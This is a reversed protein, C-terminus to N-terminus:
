EGAAASQLLQRIEQIKLLIQKLSESSGNVSAATVDGELTHLSKAIKELGKQGDAAESRVENGSMQDAPCEKIIFTEKLGM